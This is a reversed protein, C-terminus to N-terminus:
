SLILAKLLSLSSRTTLIVPQRELPGLNPPECGVMRLELELTGLVRKQGGLAHAPMHYMVYMCAFVNM